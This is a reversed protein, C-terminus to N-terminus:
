PSLEGLQHRFCLTLTTVRVKRQVLLASMTCHDVVLKRIVVSVDVENVIDSWSLPEGSTGLGSSACCVSCRLTLTVSLLLSTKKLILFDVCSLFSMSANQSREPLFRRETRKRKSPCRTCFSSVGSVTLQDARMVELAVFGLRHRLKVHRVTIGEFHMLLLNASGCSVEIVLSTVHDVLRCHPIFRLRRLIVSM